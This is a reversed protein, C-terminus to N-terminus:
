SPRDPMREESIDYGAAVPICLYKGEERDEMWPLVTVVPQDASEALAAQPTAFLSLKKINRLTPFIITYKGSAGDVVAQALDRLITAQALLEQDRM